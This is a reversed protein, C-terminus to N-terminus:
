AAGEIWDTPRVMSPIFRSEDVKARLEELGPTRGILELLAWARADYTKQDLRGRLLQTRLFLASTAAVDCLCYRQIADIEGDAYLRAVDNGDVDLKGPFGVVRAWADLSGMRGEGYLSLFDAVDLCGDAGYRYNVDRSFVYPFSLGHRMSAAVLVPLDFGRGNMTVLTPHYQDCLRIFRYTIEAETEGKIIAINKPEFESTFWAAGNCVIRWYPSPPLGSSGERPTWQPMSPDVITELDFVLFGPKNM